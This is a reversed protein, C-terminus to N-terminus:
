VVVDLRHRHQVQSQAGASSRRSTRDVEISGSAQVGVPRADSNPASGAAARAAMFNCSTCSSAVINCIYRRGTSIKASLRRGSSFKTSSRQDNTIKTSL